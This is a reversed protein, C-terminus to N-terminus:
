MLKLKKFKLYPLEEDAGQFRNLFDTVHKHRKIAGKYSKLIEDDARRSLGELLKEALGPPMKSANEKIQELGLKSKEIFKDRSQAIKYLQDYEHRAIKLISEFENLPVANRFDKFALPTIVEHQQQRSESSDEQKKM